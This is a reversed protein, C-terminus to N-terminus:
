QRGPQQPQGTALLKEELMKKGWDKNNAMTYEVAQGVEPSVNQSIQRVIHQQRAEEYERAMEQKGSKGGLYAGVVVTALWGALTALGA